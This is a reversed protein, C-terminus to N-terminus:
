QITIRGKWEGCWDTRDLNPFLAIPAPAVGQPTRVPAIITIPPNRRCFGQQVDEPRVKWFKCNGCRENDITEPM